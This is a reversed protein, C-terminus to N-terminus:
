LSALWPLLIECFEDPTEDFPCHGSDPIIEVTAHPLMQKKFYYALSPPVARDQEGWILLSPATIQGPKIGLVFREFSRTVALYPLAGGNRRLPGSFLDVLESTVFDKRHYASLLGQRVAWANGMTGALMEGVGPTRVMSFFFDNFTASEADPPILGTSNVLVLGKVMEPYDCALQAAAIGGMSHGVVVAPAPFIQSILEAVQDAWLEKSPNTKVRASYGFNYLDMAYLTHSRAIPRMVRRWHEILGGYGHILLVPHGQYPESVWYRILGHDGNIWRETISYRTVADTSTSM